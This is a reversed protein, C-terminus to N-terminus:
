EEAAGHVAPQGGANEPRNKLRVVGREMKDREMKDRSIANRLGTGTGGGDASFGACAALETQRGDVDHVGPLERMAADVLDFAEGPELPIEVKPPAPPAVPEVLQRRRRDPAGAM